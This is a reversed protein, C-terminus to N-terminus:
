FLRKQTLTGEAPLGSTCYEKDSDAQEILRKILSHLLNNCVFSALWDVLKDMM